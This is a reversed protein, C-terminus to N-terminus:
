PTTEPGHEGCYSDVAPYAHGGRDQGTGTRMWTALGGCTRCRRIQGIPTAHPECGPASYHGAWTIGCQTCRSTDTLPAGFPWLHVPTTM